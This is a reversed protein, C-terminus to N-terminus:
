AAIAERIKSLAKAELQRVREKSISHIKSLDELTSKEDDIFRRHIIDVEREKLTGIVRMLKKSECEKEICDAPDISMEESKGTYEMSEILISDISPGSYDEGGDFTSLSPNYATRQDIVDSVDERDVNLQEAIYAVKEDYTGEFGSYQSLAFYVKRRSKTTAVNVMDSKKALENMAGKVDFRAFTSFKFGLSPDFKDLSVLASLCVEQIVDAESVNRFSMKWGVYLLSRLSAAVIKLGAPKSGNLYAEYLRAEEEHTLAPISKLALAYSSITTNESIAPLM